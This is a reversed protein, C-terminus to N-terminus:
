YYDTDSDPAAMIAGDPYSSPRNMLSLNKFARASKWSVHGDGYCLNLGRIDPAPGYDVRAIPKGNLTENYAWGHYGHNYRYASSSADRNLIDSVLVRTSELRNATLETAANGRLLYAPLLDVRGWYSYQYELFNFYAFNVDHLWENMATANIEPCMSVGYMNKNAMNFSKIYPEIESVSWEPLGTAAPTFRIYHPYPGGWQQVIRMLQEDHDPAYTNIGIGYQRLNSVCGIVKAKQKAKALAPLLMAALIAIIAIVVLLEILTFGGSYGSRCGVPALQRALARSGVGRFHPQTKM